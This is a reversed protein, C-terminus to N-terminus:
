KGKYIRARQSFYRSFKLILFDEPIIIRSLQVSSLSLMSFFFSCPPFTRTLTSSKHDRRSPSLQIKEFLSLFLSLSSTEKALTFLTEEVRFRAKLKTQSLIKSSESCTMIIVVIAFIGSGLQIKFKFLIAVPMAAFRLTSIRKQMESRYWGTNRERLEASRRVAKNNVHLKFPKKYASHKLFGGIKIEIISCNMLKSYIDKSITAFRPYCFSM